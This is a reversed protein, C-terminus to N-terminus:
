FNRVVILKHIKNAFFNHISMFHPNTRNGTVAIYFVGLKDAYVQNSCFFNVTVADQEITSRFGNLNRCTSEFISDPAIWYTKLWKFKNPLYKIVTTTEIM